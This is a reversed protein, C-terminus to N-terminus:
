GCLIRETYMDFFLSILILSIAGVIGQSGDSVDILVYRQVMITFLLKGKTM